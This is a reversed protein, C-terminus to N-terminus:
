RRRGRKRKGAFVLAGGILLLAIGGGGKKAASPAFTVPDDLRDGEKVRPDVVVDAPLIDAVHEPGFDLMTGEAIDGVLVPDNALMGRYTGDTRVNLVRVWMREGSHKAFLPATTFVLKAFADVQLGEREKRSPISFTTPAADHRKEVDVLFWGGPTTGAPGAM